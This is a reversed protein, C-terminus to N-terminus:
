YKQILSLEYLILLQSYAAKGKNISDEERIEQSMYEINM